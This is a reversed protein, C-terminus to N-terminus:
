PSVEGIEGIGLELQETRETAKRGAARRQLRRGTLQELEAVFADSGLPRGTSEADRLAALLALDSEMGLLEAFRGVREILPAVRVLGDDRGALHARASSWAANNRKVRKRRRVPQWKATVRHPFGAVVIRGIRAM